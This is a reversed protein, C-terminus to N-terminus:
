SKVVGFLSFTGKDINGTEYKVRVANVASENATMSGAGMLVTVNGADDFYSSKYSICKHFETKHFQYMTIEANFSEDNAAGARDGTLELNGASGSAQNGHTGGADSTYGGYVYNASLYSSGGDNSYNFQVHKSDTAGHMGSIFLKYTDYTSDIGSTFAVESVGSSVTTTSIHVLGGGGKILSYDIRKLTGADSLLFEDTDAPEVALATEASIIDQALKANSIIGDTVDSATLPVPTPKKGIYGM